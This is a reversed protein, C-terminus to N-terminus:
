SLPPAVHPQSTIMTQLSSPIRDSDLLSFGYTILDRSHVPTSTDSTCHPLHSPHAKASSYYIQNTRPQLWCPRFPADFKMAFNGYWQINLSNNPILNLIKGLGFPLPNDASPALPWCALDGVQPPRLPPSHDILGQAPDSSPQLSSGVSWHESPSTDSIYSNWAQLPLLRNVNVTTSIGSVNLVFLKPSLKATITYPGQWWSRWKEPITVRFPGSPLNETKESSKDFWYFVSQGVSYSVEKRLTNLRQLNKHAAAFQKSRAFEYAQSLNTALTAAYSQESEFSPHSLGLLLDSPLCPHRGFSLFFPSYGTSECISVRYSFLISSLYTDWKSINGSAISTMASNLYRHFREIHGNAQPQYGTTAIKQIGLWSCFSHLGADIFEKGRDSLLRTPFGYVSFLHDHLARQVTSAKRNPLPIAIPWRTFTDIITLIWVNGDPSEPCPGVFDIAATHWPHSSSMSQALGARLPRPSKRRLCPVCSRVWRRVDRHLDKWWFRASVAALTRSRGQHGSVPLGHHLYLVFAKLSEPVVIRDCDVRPLPRRKRKRSHNLPLAPKKLVLLGRDDITFRAATPGSPRVSDDLEHQQANPSLVRSQDTSSQERLRAARSAVAKEYMDRLLPDEKQFRAFTSVEWAARDEAGFYQHALSHVRQFPLEEYSPPSPVSPAPAAEPAPSASSVESPIEPPHAPSSHARMSRTMVLAFDVVRKSWHTLVPLASARLFTYLPAVPSENYPATSTLPNRSLGDANSNSSGSRHVVDFDYELLHMVWRAIRGLPNKNEKLWKLAGCDTKVLFKRGYLYHRFVTTSWVLACAELEYQSYATSEVDTTSRSAYMVVKEGQATKQCLVAGLGQKSADTHVEFPLSWDPHALCVPESTLAEKLTGFTQIQEETYEIKNGVCRKSSQDKKMLTNLPSAIKSFNKVFKRYYNFTGLTSRLQKLSTPLPMETIAALKRPDPKIGDMGILHGLFPLEQRALFTKSAKVCLGHTDLRDFVLDLDRIHDSINDSKTFICIDDVYTLAFKWKYDAMVNDILRQWVSPANVLGFPCRLFEYLGGDPAVFATLERSRADAMPIQLFASHCDTASIFRAGNLVDFVHDVRPLMYADKVTHSNLKRYDIAVRPKKDPHRVLVVNSSWPSVSDQIVGSKKWENIQSRVHECDIPSMRYPYSRLTLDPTTTQIRMQTNHIPPTPEFTGDSFTRKRKVVWRKLQSIADPTLFQFLSKFDVDNLPTLSLEQNIESESMLEVKSFWSQQPTSSSSPPQSSSGVTKTDCLYATADLDREAQVSYWQSPLYHLSAIPTLSPLTVARNSTNSMQIWTPTTNSVGVAVRLHPPTGPLSGVVPIVDTSVGLSPKFNHGFRVPIKAHSGAPITVESSLTTLVASPQWYSKNEISLPTDFRVGLSNYYSWTNTDWNLSCRLSRFTTAGIIAPVPLNRMVYFLRSVKSNPFGPICMSVQLAALAEEIQGNASQLRPLAVNVACSAMNQATLQDALAPSLLNFRSGSDLLTQVLETPPLSSSPSDSQLHLSVFPMPQTVAEPACSDLSQFAPSLWSEETPERCEHDCVDHFFSQSAPSDIPVGRTDCSQPEPKHLIPCDNVSLSKCPSSFFSPLSSLSPLFAGDTLLSLDSVATSPPEAGSASCTQTTTTSPSLSLDLTIPVHDSDGVRWLTRATTARVSSAPNLLSASGIFHDLRAGFGKSRAWFYPLPFWTKTRAGRDLSEGLNVGGCASLISKYSDVEACSISPYFGKQYAPDSPSVSSPISDFVKPHYDSPSPAINLDGGLLFPITPHKLIVDLMHQRLCSDFQLRKPLFRPNHKGGSNPSYVAFLIHSPFVATICRAEEPRSFGPLGFIVHSAKVRSLVCVGGYGAGGKDKSLSSWHWYCYNYGHHSCWDSFGPLNRASQSRLRSETLILIDPHGAAAVSRQFNNSKWRAALGNVNWVCHSLNSRKVPANSDCTTSPSHGWMDSCGDPLVTNATNTFGLNAEIQLFFDRFSGQVPEFGNVLLESDEKLRQRLFDLVSSPIVTNSSRAATVTSTVASWSQRGFESHSLLYSLTSRTLSSVRKNATPQFLFKSTILCQFLTEIYSSHLGCKDFLALFHKLVLQQLSYPTRHHSLLLHCIRLGDQSCSSISNTACLRKCSTCPYGLTLSQGQLTHALAAQVTPRVAHTLNLLPRDLFARLHAELLVWSSASEEPPLSRKTFTERLATFDVPSLSTLETATLAVASPQNTSKFEEESNSFNQCRWSLSSGPVTLIGPHTYCLVGHPLRFGKLVWTYLQPKSAPAQCDSLDLLSFPKSLSIQQFTDLSFDLCSLLQTPVLVAARTYVSVLEHFVLKITESNDPCACVFTCHRDDPLPRSARVYMDNQSLCMDFGRQLWFATTQSRSLNTFGGLYVLPKGSKYNDLRRLRKLLPCLVSNVWYPIELPNPKKNSFM